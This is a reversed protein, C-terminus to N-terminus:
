RPGLYNCGPAAIEHLRRSAHGVCFGGTRCLYALNSGCLLSGAAFALKFEATM